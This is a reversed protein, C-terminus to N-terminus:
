SSRRLSRMSRLRNIGHRTRLFDPDLDRADLARLLDGLGHFHDSRALHPAGLVAHASRARVRVPDPAHDAVQPERVLIGRVREQDFALDLGDADDHHARIAAQASRQVDVHELLDQDRRTFPLALANFHVQAQDAALRQLEEPPELQRDDRGHGLEAGCM